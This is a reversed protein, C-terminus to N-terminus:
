KQRGNGKGRGKGAREASFKRPRNTRFTSSSTSASIGNPSMAAWQPRGFGQTSRTPTPRVKQEEERTLLRQRDDDIRPELKHAQKGALLKRRNQNLDEWSSRILAAAMGLKRKDNCEMYNVMMHMAQEQKKQATHLNFDVRNKRPPATQPVQNYLRMDQITCQLAEFPPPAAFLSCLYAGDPTCPEARPAKLLGTWPSGQDEEEMEEDDSRRIEEREEEKKKM